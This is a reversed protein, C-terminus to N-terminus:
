PRPGGRALTDVFAFGPARHLVLSIPSILPFAACPFTLATLKERPSRAQALTAGTPGLMDGPEGHSAPM